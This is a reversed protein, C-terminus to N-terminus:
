ASRRRSTPITEVRLALDDLVQAQQAATLGLHDVSDAGLQVLRRAAECLVPDALGERAAELWLGASRETVDLVQDITAPRAM